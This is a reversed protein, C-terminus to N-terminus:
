CPKCFITNTKPNRKREIPEELLPVDLISILLSDGGGGDILAYAITSHGLVMDMMAEQYVVVVFVVENGASV